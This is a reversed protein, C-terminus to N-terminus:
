GLAFGIGLCIDFRGPSGGADMREIRVLNKGFYLLFFHSVVGQGKVQM